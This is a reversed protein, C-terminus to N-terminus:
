VSHLTRKIYVALRCVMLVICQITNTWYVCTGQTGDVSCVTYHENHVAYVFCHVICVGSYTYQGTVSATYLYGLACLTCTSSTSLMHVTCKTCLACHTCISLQVTHLIVLTWWIHLTNYTTTKYPSCTHAPQTAGRKLLCGVITIM